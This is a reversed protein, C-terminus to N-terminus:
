MENGVCLTSLSPSSCSMYLRIYTMAMWYGFLYFTKVGHLRHTRTLAYELLRLGRLGLLALFFLYLSITIRVM